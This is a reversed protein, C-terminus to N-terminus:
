KNDNKRSYVLAKLHNHLPRTREPNDLIYSRKTHRIDEHGLFEAVLHINQSFELCKTGAMRRFSYLTYDENLNLEKKM